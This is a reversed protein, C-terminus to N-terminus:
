AKSIPICKRNPCKETWAHIAKQLDNVIWTRLADLGIRFWSKARRGHTKRAIAKMGMCATACRYAWTIALTAVVLLCALKDPSRIRTDEINLGRTKADGFLCAIAWRKRDDNLSQRADPRNTAIILWEDTKLQKAVFQLLIQSRGGTGNLFAQWVPTARRARKSTLLTGLSCTQGAQLTVSMDVKVRIV